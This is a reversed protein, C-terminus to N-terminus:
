VEAFFPSAKKYNLVGMHTIGGRAGITSPQNGQQMIRLTSVKIWTEQCRLEAPMPLGEYINMCTNYVDEIGTSETSDMINMIEQTITNNSLKVLLQAKAYKPVKDFSTCGATFHGPTESTGASIKGSLLDNRCPIKLGPNKDLHDILSVFADRREAEQKDFEKNGSKKVKPVHKALWGLEAHPASASGAGSGGPSAMTSSRNEVWEELLELGSYFYHDPTWLGYVAVSLCM